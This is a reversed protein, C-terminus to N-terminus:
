TKHLVLVEFQKALAVSLDSSVWEIDDFPNSAAGSPPEAINFSVPTKAVLSTLRIGSAAQRDGLPFVLDDAVGSDVFDTLVLISLCRNGHQELIARTTAITDPQLPVAGAHNAGLLVVGPTHAPMGRDRVEEFFHQALRADRTPGDVSSGISLIYRPNKRLDDLVLQFRRTLVRRGIEIPDLTDKDKPDFAPPLTGNRWYERVGLRIPGANMFSENAFYRFRPNRLLERLVEVSAFARISPPQAWRAHIEGVILVDPADALDISSHGNTAIYSQISDSLSAM